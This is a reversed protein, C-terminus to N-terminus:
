MRTATRRRPMSAKVRANKATKTATPSSAAASVAAMPRGTQPCSAVRLRTEMAPSARARGGIARAIIRERVGM